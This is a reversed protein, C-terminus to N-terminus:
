ESVRWVPAGAFREASLGRGWHITSRRTMDFIGLWNALSRQLEVVLQPGSKM